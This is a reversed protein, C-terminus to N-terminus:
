EGYTVSEREEVRCYMMQRWLKRTGVQWLEPEDGDTIMAFVVGTTSDLTPYKDIEDLIKQREERIEKRVTTIEDKFAILLEVNISWVNRVRQPTVMERPGFRGPPLVIAKM